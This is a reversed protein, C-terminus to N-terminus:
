KLSLFCFIPLIVGRAGPFTKPRRTPELKPRPSYGPRELRLVPHSEALPMCRSLPVLRNRTFALALDWTSGFRGWSDGVISRLRRAQGDQLWGIGVAGM